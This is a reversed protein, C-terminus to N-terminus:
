NGKPIWEPPLMKPDMAVGVADGMSFGVVRLHFILSGDKFGWKNSEEMCYTAILMASPTGDKETDLLYLEESGEEPYKMVPAVKVLKLGMLADMPAPYHDGPGAVVYKLLVAGLSAQTQLGHQAMDSLDGPGFEPM